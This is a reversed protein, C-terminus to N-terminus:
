VQKLVKRCRKLIDAATYQHVHEEDDSDGAGTSNPFITVMSTYINQMLINVKEQDFGNNNGNNTNELSKEKLVKMNEHLDEHDVQLREYQDRITVYKTEVENYKQQLSEHQYQLERNENELKQYNIHLQQYEESNIANGAGSSLSSTKAIQEYENKLEHYRQELEQSETIKLQLTQELQQKEKNMQTSQQFLKEDHEDQLKRITGRLESTANDLKLSWENELQNLTAQHQSELSNM